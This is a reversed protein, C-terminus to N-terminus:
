RRSCSGSAWLQIPYPFRGDFCADQRVGDNRLSTGLAFPTTSGARCAYEWEAETPLPYGWGAPIQGLTAEAATRLACYNTAESWWVHGGPSRNDYNTPNETAWYSNTLYAMLEPVRVEFRGMFFGQTLTVLTQPGEDANRGEETEASGMLFTGPPIWVLNADSLSTLVTRYYRPTSGAASPDYFEQPSATLLVYGIPTWANTDALNTSYQVMHQTGPAGTITLAPVFRNALTPSVQASVPAPPLGGALVAVVFMVRRVTHNLTM